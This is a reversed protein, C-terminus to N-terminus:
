PTKAHHQQRSVQPSSESHCSNELMQPHSITYSLMHSENRGKAGRGKRGVERERKGEMRKGEMRKGEMRKGEEWEGEMYTTGRSVQCHITVEILTGVKNVFELLEFNLM